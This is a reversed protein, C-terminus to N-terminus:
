WLTVDCLALLLLACLADTVLCEAALVLQLPGPSAGWVRVAYHRARQKGLRRLRYIERLNGATRLLAYTLATLMFGYVIWQGPPTNKLSEAVLWGKM